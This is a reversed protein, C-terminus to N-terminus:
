YVHCLRTLNFLSICKVQMRCKNFLVQTLCLKLHVHVHLCDKRFYLTCCHLPFICIGMMKLLLPYNGKPSSFSRSSQIILLGLRDFCWPQLSQDLQQDVLTLALLLLSIPNNWFSKWEPHDLHSQCLWLGRHFMLKGLYFSTELFFRSMMFM